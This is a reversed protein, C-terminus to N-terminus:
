DRYSVDPAENRLKSMKMDRFTWELIEGKFIVQAGQM